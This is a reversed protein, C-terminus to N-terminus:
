TGGSSSGEVHPASPSTASGTVRSAQNRACDSAHRQRRHERSVVDRERKSRTESGADDDRGDDRESQLGDREGRRRRAADVPARARSAVPSGAACLRLHFRLPGRCERMCALVQLRGEALEGVARQFRVAISEQAESGLVQSLMPHPGLDASPPSRSCAIAASTSLRDALCEALRRYLEGADLFLAM